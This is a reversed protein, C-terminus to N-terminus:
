ISFCFHLDTLNRELNVHTLLLLENKVTLFMVANMDEGAPYFINVTSRGATKTILKLIRSYPLLWYLMYIAQSRVPKISLFIHQM